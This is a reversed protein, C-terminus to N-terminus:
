KVPLYVGFFSSDLGGLLSFLWFHVTVGLQTGNGSDGQGKFMVSFDCDDM